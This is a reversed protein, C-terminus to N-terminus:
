SIGCKANSLEMNGQINVYSIGNLEFICGENSGTFKISAGSQPKIIIPNDPAGSKSFKYPSQSYTGSSLEIIDGPEAQSLSNQLDKTIITKTTILLIKILSLLVFFNKEM